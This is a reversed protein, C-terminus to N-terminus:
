WFTGARDFITPGSRFHHARKSVGLSPSRILINNNTSIHTLNQINKMQHQQFQSIRQTPSPNRAVHFCRALYFPRFPSKEYVVTRPGKLSVLNPSRHPWNGHSRCTLPRTLWTLSDTKTSKEKETPQQFNSGIKNILFM